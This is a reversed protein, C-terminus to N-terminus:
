RLEAVADRDLREIGRHQENRRAGVQRREREGFPRAAGEVVELRTLLISTEIEASAVHVGEGLVAPAALALVGQEGHFEGAASHSQRDPSRLVKEKSFGSGTVRLLDDLHQSGGGSVISLALVLDHAVFAADQM